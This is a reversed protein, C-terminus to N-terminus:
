RAGEDRKGTRLLDAHIDRLKGAPDDFRERVARLVQAVEPTEQIWEYTSSDLRPDLEKLDALSVDLADAMAELVEDSPMRRGHEIDSQHAPSIGVEAALARLSRGSELRLARLHEGLTPM